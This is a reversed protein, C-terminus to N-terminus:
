QFFVITVLSVLRGLVLLLSGRFIRPQFISTEKEPSTLRGTKLPQAQTVSGSLNTEEGIGPTFYASDGWTSKLVQYPLWFTGVKVQFNPSTSGMQIMNKLPTPEVVLYVMALKPYVKSNIIIRLDVNQTAQIAM